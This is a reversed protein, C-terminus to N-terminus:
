MKGRKRKAKEYKKGWIVDASIKEGGGSPPTNEMIYVGSKRHCFKKKCFKVLHELCPLPNPRTVQVMLVSSKVNSPRKKIYFFGQQGFNPLQERVESVM